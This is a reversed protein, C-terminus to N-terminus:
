IRSAGSLIRAHLLKLADLGHEHHSVHASGQSEVGLEPELLDKAVVVM